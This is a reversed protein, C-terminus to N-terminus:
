AARSTTKALLQDIADCVTSVEIARMASNDDGRRQKSNGNQLYAQLSIHGEGYPGCVEPKTPGYMGICPAGTAAALHLPGTDSGIFIAAQRVLEHLEPLTTNPAMVAGASGAVIQEAWNKEREGAWLVLSPMQHQSWLYKAVEAYREAPWLKSDWGAGPNLAVFKDELPTRHLFQRMSNAAEPFEPFRFRVPWSNPELPRLLERYRDVVHKAKPNVNSNNLWRALERGQPSAFGIRVPAGSLWCAAASKTLSQPDITVDFNRLLRRRLKIIEKPQRLWGKPVVIVEDLEPHGNLLQAPGSQTCWAIHSDPFQSRLASLLPLTHICDGVASLRSILIRWPQIFAPM